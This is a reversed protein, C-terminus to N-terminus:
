GAVDLPVRAARATELDGVAAAASATSAASAPTAPAGAANQSWAERWTEVLPEVLGRCEELPAPNQEVNAEVLRAHLYRYLQSLQTAEPWVDPDLAADLETIIEQAHLLATHARYRDGAALDTRADDIDRLLREYLLVVMRAPTMAESAERFRDVPSHLAM